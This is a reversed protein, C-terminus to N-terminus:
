RAPQSVVTVERRARSPRRACRPPPLHVDPRPQGVRHGGVPVGPFRGLESLRQRETEQAQKVGEARVLSDSEEETVHEVFGVPGDGLDESFAIRRAPLADRAGPALQVRGPRAGPSGEAGARPRVARAWLVNLHRPM